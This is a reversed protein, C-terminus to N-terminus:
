RAQMLPSTIRTGPIASWIAVPSMWACLDSVRTTVPNKARRARHRGDSFRTVGAIQTPTLGQAILRRLEEGDVPPAMLDPSDAGRMVAEEVDLARKPKRTM